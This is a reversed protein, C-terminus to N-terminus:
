NEDKNVIEKNEDWVYCLMDTLERVITKNTNYTIKVKMLENPETVEEFKSVKIEKLERDGFEDLPTLEVIRNNVKLFLQPYNKPNGSTWIEANVELDDNAIIFQNSIWSEAVYENQVIDAVNLTQILFMGQDFGLLYIKDITCYVTLPIEYTVLINELKTDSFLEKDQLYKSTFIQKNNRAIVIFDKLAFVSTDNMHENFISQIKFEDEDNYTAYTSTKEGNEDQSDYFIRIQGMNDIWFDYNIADSTYPNELEMTKMEFSYEQYTASNYDNDAKTFMMNLRYANDITAIVFGGQGDLKVLPINNYYGTNFVTVSEETLAEANRYQAM